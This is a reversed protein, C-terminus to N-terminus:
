ILNSLAEDLRTKFVELSPADMVERSLRNWHRVVRLPFFKKRLDLRFRDEKLKFGN